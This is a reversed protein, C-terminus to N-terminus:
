SYTYQADARLDDCSLWRMARMGELSMSVMREDFGPRGM